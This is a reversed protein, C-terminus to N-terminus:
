PSRIYSQEWNKGFYAAAYTFLAWLMYHCLYPHYRVITMPKVKNEARRVINSAFAAGSSFLYLLFNLRHQPITM